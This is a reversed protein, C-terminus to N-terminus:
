SSMDDVLVLIYMFVEDEDLGDNEMRDNEGVYLYEVHVVEGTLTGHM